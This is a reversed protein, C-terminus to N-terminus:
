LSGGIGRVFAGWGECAGSKWSRLREKARCCQPSDSIRRTNAVISICVWKRLSGRSPNGPIRAFAAATLGSAALDALIRERDEKSYM